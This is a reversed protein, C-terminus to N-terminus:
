HSFHSHTIFLFRTGKLGFNHIRRTTLGEHPIASIPLQLTIRLWPPGKVDALLMHLNRVAPHAARLESAYHWMLHRAYWQSSGKDKKLAAARFEGLKKVPIPGRVRGHPVKVHKKCVDLTGWPKADCQLKGYGRNWVLAQCRSADVVEPQFTSAEEEDCMGVETVSRRKRTGQRRWLGARGDADREDDSSDNLGPVVLKRKVAVADDERGGADREDDSSDNLGPVVLKRKVAVVDDKRVTAKFGLEEDSSDNLGPVVLKPRVAIADDKRVTAKYGWEEDSSDNLGPVVLKGFTGGGRGGGARVPEVTLRENAAATGSEAVAHGAEADDGGGAFTSEAGADSAAGENEV